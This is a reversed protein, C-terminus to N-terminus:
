RDHNTVGKEFRKELAELEHELVQIEGEPASHERAQALKMEVEMIQTATTCM